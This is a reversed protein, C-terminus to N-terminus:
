LVLGETILNEVLRQPIFTHLSQATRCIQQVEEQVGGRCSGLEGMACEEAMSQLTM